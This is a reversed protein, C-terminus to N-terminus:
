NFDIVEDNVTLNDVEVVGGDAGVPLACGATMRVDSVKSDGAIALVDTWRVDAQEGRSDNWRVSGVLVDHDAWDGIGREPLNTNPSYTVTGAETRVSLYSLGSDTSKQRFSLEDIEGLTLNQPYMRLQAWAMQHPVGLRMVGDSLATTGSRGDSCTGTVRDFRVSGDRGPQGDQGPAGPAGPDGKAGNAGNTGNTGNSGAAGTAGNAGNAGQPGPKGARTIKKQLTPALDRMHITGDKINASTILSGATASTAGVGLAVITCAAIARKHKM